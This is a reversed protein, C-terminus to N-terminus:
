GINPEEFNPDLKNIKYLTKVIEWDWKIIRKRDEDINKQYSKQARKYDM